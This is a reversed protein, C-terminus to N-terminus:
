KRRVAGFGTWGIPLSIGLGVVVPLVDGRTLSDASAGLAIGGVVGAAFVGMLVKQLNMMAESRGESSRSGHTNSPSGPRRRCCVAPVAHGPASLNLNRRVAAEADAPKTRDM